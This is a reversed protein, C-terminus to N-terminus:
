PGKAPEVPFAELTVADVGPQHRLWNALKAAPEGSGRAKIGKGRTGAPDDALLPQLGQGDDRWVVGPEHPLKAAWPMPGICRKWERYPPLPARSVVLAFAHLGAGESLRYREDSKAPPPYLPQQKRPPKTDEDDPDCLEDTGDPRFAILYSHAPESLEARLTVEDDERTVFSRRGLIGVRSPDFRNADLKPFHTIEFRPIQIAPPTAPPAPHAEAIEPGVQPPLPAPAVLNLPGDPRKEVRFVRLERVILLLILGAVMAVVSLTVRHDRSPAAPRLADDLDAILEGASTYRQSVRKRLLKRVIQEVPQPVGLQRPLPPVSGRAHAQVIDQHGDFPPRGTLLEYFTCGLSYLDSPPTVGSPNLIQEPPCYNLTGLAVGPSTLDGEESRPAALDLALGWDIIRVTGDDDRILNAPKIDRHVISRTHAYALGLAAQRVYACAERYPLPGHDRIYRHLDVGSIHDLVLCYRGEHELPFRAVAINEHGGLRTHIAIERRFREQDAPDSAVKVVVERQMAAQWALYVEGMGGSDLPGLIRLGAAQLWPEDSLCASSVPSVPPWPATTDSKTVTSGGEDKTVTTDLRHRNRHVLKLVSLTGPVEAGGGGQTQSLGASDDSSGAALADWYADLVACARLEPDEPKGEDESDAPSQAVAMM